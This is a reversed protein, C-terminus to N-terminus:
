LLEGVNELTLLGVTRGGDVVQLCPGEGQRLRAVAAELSSGAEVTGLERVPADAVRTEPGSRSLGAMLAGRTLVGVARGDDFAPFDPQSGALLLEAAHRLTDTPALSQFDTLMAARVPTDRLMVREEVQIAEGQAGIWVFFAILLLFPNGISLGLFGF